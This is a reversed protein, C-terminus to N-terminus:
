AELLMFTSTEVKVFIETKVEFKKPVKFYFFQALPSHVRDVQVSLVVSARM